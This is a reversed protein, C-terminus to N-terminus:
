GRAIDQWFITTVFVFHAIPWKLTGCRLQYSHSDTQPSPISLCSPWDMRVNVFFGGRICIFHFMRIKNEFEKYKKM